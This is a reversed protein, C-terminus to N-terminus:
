TGSSRSSTWYNNAVRLLTRCRSPDNGRTRLKLSWNMHRDLLGRNLLAQSLRSRDLRYKSLRARNLLNGNRDRNLRNRSLLNTCRSLRSLNNGLEVNDRLLGRDLVDNSRLSKDQLHGSLLRRDKLVLRGPSVLSRRGIRRDTTKSGRPMGRAAIRAGAKRLRTARSRGENFLLQFINELTVAHALLTALRLHEVDNRDRCL